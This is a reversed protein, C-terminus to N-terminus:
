IIKILIYKMEGAPTKIKFSEGVKVKIIAKALPSEMSILGKQNNVFSEPVISIEIEKKGKKLVYKKVSPKEINLLNLATELEFIEDEVMGKNVLLENLVAQEDEKSEQREIEIKGILVDLQEKLGILRNDVSQKEM